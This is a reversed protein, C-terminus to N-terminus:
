FPTGSMLKRLYPTSIQGSQSIDAINFYDRGRSAALRPAVLELTQVFEEETLWDNNNRKLIDMYRDSDFRSTKEMLTKKDNLDIMNGPMCIYELEVREVLSYFDNDEIGNASPAKGERIAVLKSLLDHKALYVGTLTLLACQIDMLRLKNSTKERYSNFVAIWRPKPVIM